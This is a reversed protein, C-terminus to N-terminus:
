RTGRVIVGANRRRFVTSRSAYHGMTPRVLLYTIEVLMKVRAKISLSPSVPVPPGFAACLRQHLHRVRFYRTDRPGFRYGRFRIFLTQVGTVSDCLEQTPSRAGEYRPDGIEVVTAGPKMFLSNHLASGSLGAM